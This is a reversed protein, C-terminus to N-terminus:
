RDAHDQYYPNESVLRGRPDPEQEMWRRAAAILRARVPPNWGEFHVLLDQIAEYTTWMM